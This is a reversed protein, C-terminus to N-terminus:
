LDLLATGTRVTRDDSLGPVFRRGVAPPQAFLFTNRLVLLAIRRHSLDQLPPPAARQLHGRVEEPAGSVPQRRLRLPLIDTSGAGPRIPRKSDPFGPKRPIQPVQPIRVVPRVRRALQLRVVEPQEVHMPVRPLPTLIRGDSILRGGRSLR